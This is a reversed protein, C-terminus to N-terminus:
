NVLRATLSIQVSALARSVPCNAKADEAQAIFTAEDVGPVSGECNLDIRTITFAENVKEINVAATTHIRQPTFGARSLRAALSMTFCGAHAAGLLEEPNAKAADEEFRSVFTFPATYTSFQMTGGGERFTGEWTAEAKRVAM